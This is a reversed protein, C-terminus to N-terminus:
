AAARRGLSKGNFAAQLFLTASFSAQRELEKLDWWTTVWPRELDVTITAIFALISIRAAPGKGWTARMTRGTWVGFPGQAGVNTTPAAKYYGWRRARSIVTRVSLSKFGGAAGRRFHAEQVSPLVNAIFWRFFPVFTADVKLRDRIKVLTPSTISYM